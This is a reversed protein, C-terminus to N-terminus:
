WSFGEAHMYVGGKGVWQLKAAKNRVDLAMSLPGCVGVGIEGDYRGRIDELLAPLNPRRQIMVLKDVALKETELSQSSTSPPSDSSPSSGQSNTRLQQARVEVPEKKEDPIYVGKSYRYSSRTIRDEAFLSAGQVLGTVHVHMSVNIDAARLADLATRLETEVWSLDASERIAWIFHINQVPLITKSARSAIDLLIPLTFSIGTSGAILVTTGFAAFDSHSSRYPGDILTLHDGGEAAGRRLRGTFGKHGRLFFVLEGNHSEPTSAITAPHSQFLGYRPMGLLIHAGPTWTKITPNRICVRVVDSSVRTVMGRCRRINRYAYIAGQILRAAFYLAISIYVYIRAHLATTPIHVLVAAIFGIFTVIHQVVFFEYSLHRFPALTSLNMWLLLVYAALGTPPCSDTTWEMKMLGLRIWGTNQFGFHFTATLLLGRSSWRHLVNLREYGVATVFGVFNRKNALLVVLPLQAM